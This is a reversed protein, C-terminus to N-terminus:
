SIKGLEAVREYCVDIKKKVETLTIDERQIATVANEIPELTLVVETLLAWDADNLETLQNPMDKKKVTKRIELYISQVISNYAERLNVLSKLM